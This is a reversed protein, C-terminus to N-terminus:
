FSGEDSRYVNGSPDVWVGNTERALQRVVEELADFAVPPAGIPELTVYAVARAGPLREAISEDPQEEATVVVIQWDGGDRAWEHGVLEWAGGAPLQAPLDFTGCSWVSLDLSM